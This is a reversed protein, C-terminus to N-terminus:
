KHALGLTRKLNNQAAIFDPRIELAKRFSAIGEEIRGKRVLIIGLNNHAEANDPDIRLGDHFCRMAADMKGQKAFALGLSYYAKADDPSIRLVQSFHISAEDLRNQRAFALGLNYHAKANDPDEQLKRSYHLIADDLKGLKALIIGMNNYAEEYDPNIRLAEAYNAMAEKLRGLDSLTNGLSYHMVCNNDTTNITHEFIATSGAWHRLQLITVSTIILLLSVTTVALVKKRNRLRSVLEPTGWAIIIFLGIIPVYTYRDAMAQSGVQVLGIVPVLTGLYWLWGAVLYPRQKISKFVLLCMFILSLFAGAVKWWPQSVPFPYLLALNFPWVMKIIYAMYSVLSNEIRIILPYHVLSGVADGSQQAFYTIICSIISLIFFPAKELVLRGAVPKDSMFRKLPWYDLILLVFPLTVLMPKSMLGLSFFIAVMLYRGTGPHEVYRTYGWLTLMLFFASLLDKREAVWAVSEVHLPHLAFLAAVFASQWLANTMRRFILFLLLTNAIHFFVNTLHHGGPEMGYIHIDLTHSLWTLPHWNAAYTSTFAWSISELTLGSKIHHNNAIYQQDDWVFVHTQVQWYVAFTILSLFLCVLLNERITLWTNNSINHTVKTM